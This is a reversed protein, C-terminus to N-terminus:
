LLQIVLILGIVIGIGYFLINPFLAFALGCLFLIANGTDIKSNVSQQQRHKTLDKKVNVQKDM